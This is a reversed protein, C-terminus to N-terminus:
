QAYSGATTIRSNYSAILGLSQGERFTLWASEAIAGDHSQRTPTMCCLRGAWCHSTDTVTAAPASWSAPIGAADLVNVKSPPVCGADQIGPEIRRAVAFRDKGKVPAAGAWRPPQPREKKGDASGRPWRRCDRRSRWPVARGELRDACRRPRFPTHDAQDAAGDCRLRWRSRRAETRYTTGRKVLTARRWRNWRHAVVWPRSRGPRDRGVAGRKSPLLPELPWIERFPLGFIM